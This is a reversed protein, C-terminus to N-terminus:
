KPGAPAPASLKQAPVPSTTTPVAARPRASARLELTVTGSLPLRFSAGKVAADRHVAAPATVAKEACCGEGKKVDKEAKEAKEACCGDGKKDGKEAEDACCGDGKEAEDACCGGDKEAKETCCDDGKEGAKEECCDADLVPGDTTALGARTSDLDIPPAAHRMTSPAEPVPEPRPPHNRTQPTACPESSDPMTTPPRHHEDPLPPLEVPAGHANLPQPLTRSPVSPMPVASPNLVPMPVPVSIGAPANPVVPAVVAYGTLQGELMSAMRAPTPSPAFGSIRNDATRAEIIAVRERVGAKGDKEAVTQTGLSVVLVGDNPILWEGVVESRSVEPVEIRVGMKDWRKGKEDDKAPEQVETLSVSHVSGVRTDTLVMQTLIGQDLQRGRLTTALGERAHEVKPVWAVTSAHNVPGDAMRAVGTVFNRSSGATVHAPTDPSAIVKPTALVRGGPTSTSKRVIREGVERPATWVTANGQRTVSQLKEFVDARWDVTTLEVVRLEYVIQQLRPVPSTTPPADAGLLALALLGILIRM